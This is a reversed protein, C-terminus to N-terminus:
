KKLKDSFYKELKEIKPHIVVRCYGYEPNDNYFNQHYDEAVYFNTYATIETVIPDDFIKQDNMEKIVEMAIKRQDENQYFIGSRYQPGQDNGQRNLTTPDHTKFFVHLLETLSIVNRNFVVQVGEAHGTTGTCVEKYSPNKVTGGTYGSYVTDVGNLRQFVAETCWFCGAALTITDLDKAITDMNNKPLMIKAKGAPNACANFFTILAVALIGFTIYGKM